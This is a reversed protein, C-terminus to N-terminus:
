EVHFAMAVYSHENEDEDMLVFFRDSVFLFLAFCCFPDHLIMYTFAFLKYKHYVTKPLPNLRWGALARKGDTDESWQSHLQPWDGGEQGGKAKGPAPTNPLLSSSTKATLFSKTLSHKRPTGGETPM